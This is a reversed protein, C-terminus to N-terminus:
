QPLYNSDNNHSEMIIASLWLATVRPWKGQLFVNTYIVCIGLFPKTPNPGQMKAHSASYDKQLTGTWSRPTGQTLHVRDKEYQKNTEYMLM